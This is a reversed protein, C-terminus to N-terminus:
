PAVPMAFGAAADPAERECTVSGPNCRWGPLCQSLCGGQAVNQVTGLLPDGILVDRHSCAIAALGLGLVIAAVLVRSARISQRTRMTGPNYGAGWGGGPPRPLEVETTESRTPAIPVAM